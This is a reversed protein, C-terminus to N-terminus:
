QHVITICVGSGAESTTVCYENTLICPRLLKILCREQYQSHAAPCAPDSDRLFAPIYHKNSGRILCCCGGVNSQLVHLPMIKLKSHINTDTLSSLMWNQLHLAMKCLKSSNQLCRVM